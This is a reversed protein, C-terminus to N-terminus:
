RSRPHDYTVPSRSQLGSDCSALQSGVDSLTYASPSTVAARSGLVAAVEDRRLIASALVQDGLADAARAAPARTEATCSAIAGAFCLLMAALVLRM